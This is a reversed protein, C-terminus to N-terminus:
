YNYRNKYKSMKAEAENRLEANTKKKGSRIWEKLEKKDFYLRKGPKSVPIEQRSVKSYLASVTVKLFEAAEGITLLQDENDEYPQLNLLLLELQEVKEYLQRVVEPLKDFNFPEM